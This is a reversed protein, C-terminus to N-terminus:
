HAPPVALYRQVYIASLQNENNQRLIKDETSKVPHGLFCAVIM